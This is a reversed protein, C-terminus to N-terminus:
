GAVGGANATSEGHRLLIVKCFGSSDYGSCSELEKILKCRRAQLFCGDQEVNQDKTYTLPRKKGRGMADVLDLVDVLPFLEKGESVASSADASSSVTTSHTSTENHNGRLSYEDSGYKMDLFRKCWMRCTGWHNKIQNASRGPLELAIESWKFGIQHLLNLIKFDEEQSFPKYGNSEEYRCDQYQHLQQTSSPTVSCGEM